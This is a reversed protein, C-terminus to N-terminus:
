RLIHIYMLHYELLVYPSFIAAVLEGDGVMILVVADPSYCKILSQLQELIWTKSGSTIIMNTKEQLNSILETYYTSETMHIYATSTSNSETNVITAKSILIVNIQM